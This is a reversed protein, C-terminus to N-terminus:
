LYYKDKLGLNSECIYSTHSVNVQLFTSLYDLHVLNSVCNMEEHM